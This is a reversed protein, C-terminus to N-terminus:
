RELPQGPQVWADIGGPLPPGGEALPVNLFAVLPGYREINSAIRQM